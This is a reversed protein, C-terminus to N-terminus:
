AREDAATAVVEALLQGQRVQQGVRCHLTQVMGDCAAALPFEMKMAELALLLEGRRVAQGPQVALAVIRGDMPALLRGDGAAAASPAAAYTRDEHCRLVGDADLWLRDGERAHRVQADIGNRRYRLLGDDCALVSVTEGAAQPADALSLVYQDNGLAQVLCRREVGACRLLLPTALGPASHWNSLAAAFGAARRLAVADSHHLVLAALLTQWPTPGASARLHAAPFHEVVFATSFDGATFAPHELAALLFDRNNAVGLLLTDRLLRGLRRRAQERTAGYAILKAQLSDYHPGIDLGECLGHDVRLGPGEPVRWCLVRGTQPRFGDAPDEACLRVEIACGSRRADIQEQSLPLPMGQAVLLQWAVLDIDHVLETVPHEVQLRTNMELFYFRGDPALLFEVTGAGVYDVAQAAAVAAAAMRARLAADVAPSPTEEILKQNRRQVSCDREGLHVIHGHRDGFVQIEVHRAAPLLQEILLEGDGFASHAESRAAALAAPLEQLTDVRRMGRGGGGAAAKIMLPLPINKAAALLAEDSQQASECGPVCPVGAARMRQKAQAKNGMAEIAAPDPGIFVLGAQQVARAFDARESLFGYGPHVARAGSDLAAQMIRDMCLYSERVSAPGLCVACDALAVHPAARDAESYVAVTALGLAKCSRLVRLAIEGRNAVLVSDFGQSM